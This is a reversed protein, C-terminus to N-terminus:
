DLVIRLTYPGIVDSNPGAHVHVHIVGGVIAIQCEETPGPDTCQEIEVGDEHIDVDLDATGGTDDIARSTLRVRLTGMGATVEFWDDDDVNERIHAAVSEGAGGRELTGLHQARM